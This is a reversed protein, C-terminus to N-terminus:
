RPMAIFSFQECSSLRYSAYMSPRSSMCVLACSSACILPQSAHWRRTAKARLTFAPIGRATFLTNLRGACDRCLTSAICASSAWRMPPDLGARRPRELKAVARTIKSIIVAVRTRAACNPIILENMFGETCPGVSGTGFSITSVVGVAMVVEVLTGVFWGKGVVSTSGGVETGHFVGSWTAIFTGEVSVGNDSAIAGAGCCICCGREAKGLGCCPVCRAGCCGGIVAWVCAGSASGAEVVNGTKIGGCSSAVLVGVVTINGVCGGNGCYVGRCVRIGSGVRVGRGVRVETGVCGGGSM